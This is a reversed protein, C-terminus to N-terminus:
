DESNTLKLQNAEDVEEATGNILSAADEQIVQFGPLQKPFNQGDARVGLRELSRTAPLLSHNVSGLWKSYNTSATKLGRGIATAHGIMVSTRELLVRTADVIKEQNEAQQGLDIEVRAFAIIALLGTPGVITIGNKAAENMFFPDIESIKEVATENPLYMVNLVRRIETSRGTKRYDSRIASRYQRSTLERLHMRMTRKLKESAVLKEEKDNAAALDFLFKSAKCDIVLTSDFPLFVVADPRVRGGDDAELTHQIVFDRGSKLGFSKLSNELGIEAFKGAGIPSSLANKVTEVLADNRAVQTGLSAVSRTVTEFQKFLEESAQKVRKESDDKVITTERKHDDLLKNSLKTASEALAANAGDMFKKQIEEWDKIKNNLLEIEKRGVSVDAWLNKEVELLREKETLTEQFQVQLESLRIETETLERQVDTARRARLSFFIGSCIAGIFVSAIILLTKEM